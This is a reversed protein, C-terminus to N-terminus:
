PFLLKTVIALTEDHSQAIQNYKPHSKLQSISSKFHDNILRKVKKRIKNLEIKFQTEDKIFALLEIKSIVDDYLEPFSERYTPSAGYSFDRGSKAGSTNINVM